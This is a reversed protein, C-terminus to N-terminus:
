TSKLVKEYAKCWASQFYVEGCYTYNLKDMIKMMPANDFFTDVKISYVQHKICVDEIMEFLRTAIGKGKVAGSTAVRHVVAYDGHTLWKGKINEYAPENEFIIAAYAVTVDGDELVFGYGRAIDDHITHENPYGNQWQASGEQKRQEIAQQIITWIVPADSITAKRIIM